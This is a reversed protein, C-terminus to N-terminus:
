LENLEGIRKEVVTAFEDVEQPSYGAARFADRVQGPSLQGLLQGMWKADARPIHKGIWRLHLRSFFEKPNVALALSPRTPMNFDVYDPTIKSIFRSHSYSVLNGKSVSNSRRRGTTGFSAGLDSIMYIKQTGEPGAGDKEEYIANNEDKLDWNNILAMMVRLGNLERTSTFPNHRWQWTGIKKEGKLYRKLRVNTILGSSFDLKRARKRQLHAPMEEVRLSPLFYDENTFYGVAWVLRSAVTEPRAEEGLKVKWKVGDQDRVDFKPNTGNLDEKLFTFTTHPEDEKGGPGYFLNRSAIDDPNRWLVPTGNGAIGRKEESAQNKKQTTGVAPFGLFILALFLAGTRINRINRWM